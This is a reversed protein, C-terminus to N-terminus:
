VTKDKYNNFGGDEMATKRSHCSHCLAQLNSEDWFLKKDGRHPLRHDIDTAQTIKGEKLCIECLPHERLFIIRYKRWRNDYGRDYSSGRLKDHQAKHITCYAENTLESCGPNSCTKLPRNPV